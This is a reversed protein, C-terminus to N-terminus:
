RTSMKAPPCNSSGTRAGRFRESTRHPLRIFPPQSILLDYYIAFHHDIIERSGQGMRLIDEIPVNGITFEFADGDHGHFGLLLDGKAKPVEGFPTGRLECRTGGEYRITWGVEQVFTGSYPKQRPPLFTAHVDKRPIPAVRGFSIPVRASIRDSRPQFISIVSEDVPFGPGCVQEMDVVDTWNLDPPEPQFKGKDLPVFELDRGVAGATLSQVNFAKGNRRYSFLVTGPIPPKIWKPKPATCDEPPNPMQQKKDTCYELYAIHSPVHSHMGDHTVGRVGRANPIVVTANTQHEVFVVIGTFKVKITICAMELDEM